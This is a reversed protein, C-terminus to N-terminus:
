PKAKEKKLARARAYEIDLTAVGNKFDEPFLGHSCHPCAPVSKQKRWAKDLERAALTRAQFKEAEAVATERALLRKHHADFREVLMLFADFAEIDTECDKCWARRENEDYVLRVHPCASHVRRSMGRAIRLDEINVVTVGGLFEKEEIPPTGM